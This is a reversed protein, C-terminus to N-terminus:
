ATNYGINIESSRSCGDKPPLGSSEAAVVIFCSDPPAIDSRYIPRSSKYGRHSSVTAPAAIAYSPQMDPVSHVFLAAADGGALLM